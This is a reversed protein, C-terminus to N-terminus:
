NKADAEIREGRLVAASFLADGLEDAHAPNADLYAAVADPSCPVPATGGDEFLHALRVGAWGVLGRLLLYHRLLPLTLPDEQRAMLGREHLTERV